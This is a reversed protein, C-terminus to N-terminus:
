CHSLRHRSRLAARSASANRVSASAATGTSTVRAMARMFRRYDSTKPGRHAAGPDQEIATMGAGDFNKQHMRAPWEPALLVEAGPGNWFAFIGVALLREC